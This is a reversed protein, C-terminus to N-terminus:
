SLDEFDISKIEGGPAVPSTMVSNIEDIIHAVRLQYNIAGIPEVKYNKYFGRKEDGETRAQLVSQVYEVARNLSVMSKHLKVQRNKGKEAVIQAIEPMKDNIIGMNQEYIAVNDEVSARRSAIISYIENQLIFQAAKPLDFTKGGRTIQYNRVAIAYDIRKDREFAWRASMPQDKDFLVDNKREIIALCREALKEITNYNMGTRSESDSRERSRVGKSSNDDIKIIALLDGELGDFSSRSDPSLKTELTSILSVVDSPKMEFYIFSPLRGLMSELKSLADSFSREEDNLEAGSRIKRKIEQEVYDVTENEAIEHEYLPRHLESLLDPLIRDAEAARSADHSSERSSQNLAEGGMSRLSHEAKVSSLEHSNNSPNNENKGSM